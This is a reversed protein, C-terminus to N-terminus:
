ENEFHFINKVSCCLSRPKWVLVVHTNILTLHLNVDYNTIFNAIHKYCIYARVHQIVIVNVLLSVIEKTEKADLLTYSMLFSDYDHLQGM